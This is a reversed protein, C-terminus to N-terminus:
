APAAIALPDRRRRGTLLVGVGFLVWAVQVLHVLLAVALASPGGLQMAPAFLAFAGELAGIQGPVFDFASAGTILVALAVFPRAALFPAGVAQALLGVLVVQLLRNFVLWALAPWPFSPLKRMAGRFQQLAGSLHPIRALFGGRVPLFRAGLLLGGGLAALIATQGVLTASLAFSTHTSRAALICPVLICASGLLNLAQAVTAVASTNAMSAHSALVTAKTIEAAMRGVPVANCVSYGIFHARVLTPLPIDSKMARFLSRAALAEAGIRAGELLLALPLLPLASAVLAYATSCDIRGLAWRALLVGATLGLGAIAVSRGRPGRKSKKPPEMPTRQAENQPSKRVGHPSCTFNAHGSPAEAMAGFHM